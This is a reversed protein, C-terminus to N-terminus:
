LTKVFETVASQLAENQDLAAVMLAHNIGLSDDTKLNWFDARRNLEERLIEIFNFFQTATIPKESQELTM